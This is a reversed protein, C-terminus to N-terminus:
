PGAFVLSAIIIISALVGFGAGVIAGGKWFPRVDPAWEGWVKRYLVVVLYLLLGGAAGWLVASLASALLYGLIILEM